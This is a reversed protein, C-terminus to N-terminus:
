NKDPYEVFEFLQNSYNQASPPNDFAALRLLSGQGPSGWNDVFCQKNKLKFLGKRASPVIEFTQNSFNDASQANDHDAMRLVQGQKSAGWNDLFFGFKYSEIKYVLQGRVRYPKFRWLQNSYGADSPPNDYPCLKPERGQKPAGGGSWNDGM